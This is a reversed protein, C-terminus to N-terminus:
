LTGTALGNAGTSKAGSQFDGIAKQLGNWVGGNRLFLVVIILALLGQSIPKLTKSYGLCGIMGIAVIWYIYGGFIDQKLENALQATTGHIATVFILVGLAIIVYPM